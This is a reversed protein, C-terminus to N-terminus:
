VNFVYGRGRISTLYKPNNPDKELLKRLRAVFNDVTRTEVNGSIGWASALLHARSLVIGPHRLFERLVDSELATLQIKKKFCWLMCSGVDLKFPGVEITQSSPTQDLYISRAVMRKIRMMLESLNFPKTVYDDVGMSLGHIRDADAARATLMLIGVTPDKSRIHEAVEFGNRDPLMVDLVIASFEGNQNYLDIAEQGNDSHVVCFGEAELNLKLSFALNAEDEVLFITKEPPM